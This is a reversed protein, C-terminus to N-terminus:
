QPSLLVDVRRDDAWGAEDTGIADLEGRSSSGIQEGRLGLRELKNSVAGARRAGLDMNYGGDGRPDTRGVLALHRDALPGSDFCTAVQTLVETSTSNLRASDFAFYADENAIGCITRLEESIVITGGKDIAAVPETAPGEAAPASSPAAQRSCGVLLLISFFSAITTRIRM